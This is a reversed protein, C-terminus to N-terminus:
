MRIGNIKIFRLQHIAQNRDYKPLQNFANSLNTGSSEVIHPYGDKKCFWEFKKVKDVSISLEITNNVMKGRISRLQWM